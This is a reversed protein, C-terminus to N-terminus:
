EEGATEEETASLLGLEALISRVRAVVQDKDAGPEQEYEHFLKELSEGAAEREAITPMGQQVIWLTLAIGFAFVLFLSIPLLSGVRRVEERVDTSNISLLAESKDLEDDSVQALVITINDPGGADRAADVLDVCAADLKDGQRGLVTRM